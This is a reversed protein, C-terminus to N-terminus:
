EEDDEDDEDDDEDDEDLKVKKQFFLICGNALSIKTILWLLHWFNQKKKEIGINRQTARPTRSSVKYVVGLWFYKKFSKGPV